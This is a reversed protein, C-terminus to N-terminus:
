GNPSGSFRDSLLNPEVLIAKEHGRDANALAFWFGVIEELLPTSEPILGTGHHPNYRETYTRAARYAHEGCRSASTFALLAHEIVLLERCRILRVVYSGRREHENQESTVRHLLSYTDRDFPDVPAHLHARMYAVVEAALAGCRQWMAVDLHEPCPATQLTELSREALFLAFPRATELERCLTKLSTLVTISIYSTRGERLASAHEALKAVQKQM